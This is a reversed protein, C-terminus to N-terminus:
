GTGNGPGPNPTIETTRPAPSVTVHVKVFVSPDDGVGVGTGGVGVGTGGVGVGTGGVGVGTGGVGVGVGIGGVGVGVGLANQVGVSVTVSTNGPLAAANVDIVAPGPVTVTSGTLVPTPSCPRVSTLAVFAFTAMGAKGNPVVPGTLAVNVRGFAACATSKVSRAEDRALATSMLACHLANARSSCVPNKSRDNQSNPSLISFRNPGDRLGSSDFAPSYNAQRKATVGLRGSGRM